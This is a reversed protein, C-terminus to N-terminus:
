QIPRPLPGWLGRMKQYTLFTGPFSRTLSTATWPFAIGTRETLATTGRACPPDPYKHNVLKNRQVDETEVIGQATDCQAKKRRAM